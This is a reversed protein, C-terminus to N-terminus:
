AGEECQPRDVELTVPQLPKHFTMVWLWVDGRVLVKLREWWTLRWRTIVAGDDLRIAPLPQYEPQNKAFVIEPLGLDPSIPRM